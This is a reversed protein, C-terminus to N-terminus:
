GVASRVFRQWANKPGATVPILRQESRKQARTPKYTVVKGADNLQTVQKAM